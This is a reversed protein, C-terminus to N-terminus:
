IGELINKRKRIEDLIPLIHCRFLEPNESMPFDGINKIVELKSGKIRQHTAEAREPTGSSDYEVSLLYVPCNKTDIEHSRHDFHGDDWYFYLDGKFVGPGSQMYAWLTEWRFEEPSNPAIQGSVFGACVEGGHIDPRNLWNTDYYPQLKDAGELAVVARLQDAYDLALHLAIRGGMSCGMFVPKDIQMARCFTCILETYYETTLKYSNNHWGPPPNSKGHWPM